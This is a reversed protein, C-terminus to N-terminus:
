VIAKSLAIVCCFFNIEHDLVSTDRYLHEGIELLLVKKTSEDIKSSFIINFMDKMLSQFDSGFNLEESLVYKRISLVSEKLILSKVVNQAHVATNNCAM